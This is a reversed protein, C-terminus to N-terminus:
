RSSCFCCFGWPVPSIGPCSQCLHTIHVALLEGEAPPFGCHSLFDTLIESKLFTSSYHAKTCHFFAWFDSTPLLSLCWGIFHKELIGLVFIKLNVSVSGSSVEQSDDRQMTSYFGKWLNRNDRLVLYNQPFLAVSFDWKELFCLTRVQIRFEGMTTFDLYMEKCMHALTFEEGKFLREWNDWESVTCVSCGNWWM